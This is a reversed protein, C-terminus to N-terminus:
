LYTSVIHEQNLICTALVSLVKLVSFIRGDWYFDECFQGFMRFLIKSLVQYCPISYYYKCFMWLAKPLRQSADCHKYLFNGDLMTVPFRYCTGLPHPYVYRHLPTLSREGKWKKSCWAVEGEWYLLPREVFFSGEANPDSPPRRVRMFWRGHIPRLFRLVFSMVEVGHAQVCWFDYCTAIGKQQLGWLVPQVKYPNLLFGTM